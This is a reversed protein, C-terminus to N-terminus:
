VEELEISLDYTAPGTTSAGGDVAPATTALDDVAKTVVVTRSVGLEDQYTVSAAMGALAATMWTTRMTEDAGARTLTVRYKVARYARRLQGNLMRKDEAVLVPERGIPLAPYLSSGNLVVWCNVAM